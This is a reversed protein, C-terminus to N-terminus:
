FVLGKNKPRKCLLKQSKSAIPPAQQQYKYSGPYPDKTVIWQPDWPGKAESIMWNAPIKGSNFDQKYFPQNQAQMSVMTVVCFAIMLGKKIM